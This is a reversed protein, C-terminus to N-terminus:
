APPDCSTAVTHLATMKAAATRSSTNEGSGGFPNRLIASVGPSKIAFDGVPADGNKVWAYQSKSVVLVVKLFLMTRRVCRSCESDHCNSSRCIPAPSNARAGFALQKLPNNGIKLLSPPSNRLHAGRRRLQRNSMSAVRSCTSCNASDGGEGATLLYVVLGDSGVRLAVFSSRLPSRAMPSSLVNRWRMSTASSGRGRSTSPM